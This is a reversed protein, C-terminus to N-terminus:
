RSLKSVAMVKRFRLHDVPPSPVEMRPWGGFARELLQVILEREDPAVNRGDVIEFTLGTRADLERTGSVQSM